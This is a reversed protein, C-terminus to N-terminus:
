SSQCRRCVTRLRGCFNNMNWEDGPFFLSFLGADYDLDGDIGASCIRIFPLSPKAMKGENRGGQM